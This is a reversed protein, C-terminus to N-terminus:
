GLPDYDTGDFMGKEYADNSEFETIQPKAIKLGRVVPTDLWSLHSALVARMVRQLQTFWMLNRVLKTDFRLMGLEQCYVVNVVNLTNGGSTYWQKRNGINHLYNNEKIGARGMSAASAYGSPGMENSMSNISSTPNQLLAKGFLQDSMYKPRGLKMDDYGFALYLLLRSEAPILPRGRDPPIPKVISAYPHVMLKTSLQRVSKAETNHRLMMTPTNKANTIYEPVIFDHIMRDFTYSYNLINIFAVEKMFSHVNIPVINMDLINWIRMENRTNIEINSKTDVSKVLLSKIQDETRDAQALHLVREVNGEVVNLFQFPCPRLRSMSLNQTATRQLAVALNAPAMVATDKGNTNNILIVLEDNLKISNIAYHNNSFEMSASSVEDAIHKFICNLRFRSKIVDITGGSRGCRNYNYLPETITNTDVLQGFLRSYVAGDNLYRSLVVLNKMTNSYEQITISERNATIAYKNYIDKAGPMHDMSPEVDNRALLLRSAYNYKFVNSGNLNTPLLVLNRASIDWTTKNGNMSMQPVLVNSAPMLPLANYRQKYDQLYDKNLEMFYPSSDNLEKYVGEACKKLSGALDVMHTLMVNYYSKREETQNGKTEIFTDPTVLRVSKYLALNDETTDTVCSIIKNGVSTSDLMSKLFMARRIYQDFLKVYLPLNAKMLERTGEPIETINDFLFRKRKVTKDIGTVILKMIECTSEFLVSNPDPSKTKGSFRYANGGGGAPAKCCVNPFAKNKMLEYSAASNIFTEILPLYMKNLLPDTNDKLYNHITRNLSFLLSNYESSNALDWSSDKNIFMIISNEGDKKSLQINDTQVIDSDLLNRPFVSNSKDHLQITSRLPATYKVDLTHHAYRYYVIERLANDLTKPQTATLYKFTTHLLSQGSQLGTRDRDNFLVEVLNEQLWRLSGVYGADEYKDLVNESDSLSLKMKRINSQVDSLLTKCLDELKSTDVNVSNGSGFTIQILSNNYCSLDMMACVLDRFLLYVNLHSLDFQASPGLSVLLYGAFQHGSRPGGPGGPVLQSLIDKSGTLARAFRETISNNTIDMSKKYHSNLFKKYEKYINAATDISGNGPGSIRKSNWAKLNAISAGHILANWHSLVKWCNYVAALPAAIAEHVMVLKDVAVNSVNRSGQILKLVVKYQDKVDKTNALDRKYNRIMKIFSVSQKNALANNTFNRMEFDMEERIDIISKQLHTLNRAKRSKARDAVTTFKDSPASSRGFQDNSNLVDYDVFDSLDDDYTTEGKLNKRRNKTYEEINKQQLFGMVRNIELSFSMIINRTTSSPYKSKLAQYIINIENIMDQIQNESYNGDNVHDYKDFMIAIFKSWTGDVSPVASLVWDDPSKIRAENVGFKERYWEALLPLRLYLELAEPIVQVTYGGGLQESGGLITRLPNLSDSQYSKLTPRNFLRYADVTTFVKAVISKITMIFLMDTEYFRDSRCSSDYKIKQEGGIAHYELDGNSHYPHYAPIASMSVGTHKDTDGCGITIGASHAAIVSDRVGFGHNYKQATIQAQSDTTSFTYIHKQDMVGSYIDNGGATKGDFSDGIYQHYFYMGSNVNFGNTFSGAVVYDCLGNFIQGPTMFTKSQPNLEGFKSGVTAFASLINELARMSKVVKEAQGKILKLKAASDEEIMSLAIFPNGPGVKDDKFHGRADSMKKDIWAYYHKDKTNGESIPIKIDKDTLVEKHEKVKLSAINLASPFCEFLAALNDGSRENFWKAVIEVQDLMKVVSGIADPHRAIGDAFARLYLDVAQAIEVMRVKAKTQLNWLSTVNDAVRVKKEDAMVAGDIEERAKHAQYLPSTNAPTAPSTKSMDLYDCMENNEKKIKNILWGAEEGLVQEYGDGFAAMEEAVHALNSKVHAISYFYIISAKAKDISSWSGDGLLPDAGGGEASGFFASAVNSLSKRIENPTDVHIESVAKVIKESFEDITMVMGKMAAALNKFLSGHTGTSLPDMAQICVTYSDMFNDRRNKSDVDKAWGSLAVHMNEKDLSELNKLTDIFRDLDENVPIDKGIHQGIQVANDVIIQMHGRLMKRFEGLLFMRNKESQKIKNGLSKKAWYTTLGTDELDNGFADGGFIGGGYNEEEEEQGGLKEEEEEQGGCDCGGLKSRNAELYKSIDAHSYDNKYIVSAAAMMTELEKSSPSKSVINKYIKLRLENANKSSKFDAVSMGLKKLAKDILEASRAVSSVGALLYGLKDSFRETGVAEKIDRVLGSFDRNDELLGILSKGTPGVAVDILNGMMATQRKLEEKVKDYLVATEKSQEAIRADGSEAVLAKQRSYSSDLIENLAQMNQLIRLADGAVTMFETHLGQFLSYMVEAIRNVAENEDLNAPIMNAGYHSNIANRLVNITEKQKSPSSSFSSNFMKANKPNPIRKSLEDVIKSIPETKTFKEAKINLAKFVDGAIARIMQEKGKSYVSDGYKELGEVGGIHSGGTYFGSIAGGTVSGKCFENLAKEISETNDKGDEGKLGSTGYWKSLPNKQEM